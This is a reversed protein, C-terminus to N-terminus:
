PNQYLVRSNLDELTPPKANQGPLQSNDLRKPHTPRAPATELNCLKARAVKCGEILTQLWIPLQSLMPPHAHTSPAPSTRSCTPTHDRLPPPHPNLRCLNKPNSQRKFIHPAPTPIAQKEHTKTCPTPRSINLRRRIQLAVGGVKRSYTQGNSPPPPYNLGALFYHKHARLEAAKFKAAKSSSPRIVPPIHGRSPSPKLNCSYTPARAVGYGQFLLPSCGSAPSATPGAKLRLSPTITSRQRM